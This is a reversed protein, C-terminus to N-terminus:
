TVNTWRRTTASILSPQQSAPLHDTLVQEVASQLNKRFWEMDVEDARESWRVLISVHGAEHAVPESAMKERKRKRTASRASRKAPASM